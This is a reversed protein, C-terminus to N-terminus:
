EYDKPETPRHPRNVGRIFQAFMSRAQSAAIALLAGKVAEFALNGGGSAPRVEATQGNAIVHVAPAKQRSTLLALLVGGGVAGALFIAPSQRYRKRWDTASQVKQGLEHLNERLQEQKDRIHSEIEDSTTGM